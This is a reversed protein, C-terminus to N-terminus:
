EVWGIMEYDDQTEAYDPISVIINDGSYLVDEYKISKGDVYNPKIVFVDNTGYSIILDGFTVPTSGHDLDEDNLSTTQSQVGNDYEIINLHYNNNVSLSYTLGDAGSPTPPTPEDLWKFGIYNFKGNFPSYASSITGYLGIQLPNNNEVVSSSIAREDILVNDIYIKRKSEDRDYVVRIDKNTIDGASTYEVDTGGDGIGLVPINSSNKAFIQFLHGSTNYIKNAIINCYQHKTDPDQNFVPKINFDIEFSKQYNESSNIEVTTPIAYNSASNHYSSSSLYLYDPFIVDEYWFEYDSIDDKRLIRNNGQYQYLIMDGNENTILYIKNSETPYPIYGEIANLGTYDVASNYTWTLIQQGEGYITNNYIVSCGSAVRVKWDNPYGIEIDDITRYSSQVTTYLINIEQLVVDNEDYQIVKITADYGGASVTVIEYKKGSIYGGGTRWEQETLRKIESIQGSGGEVIGGGYVIGNKIIAGINGNQIIAGM